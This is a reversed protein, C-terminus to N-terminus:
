WFDQTSIYYTGDCAVGIGTKDYNSNLINRRYDTNDMWSKIQAKAISDASYSVYSAGYGKEVVVFPMKGINETIGEKYRQWGVRKRLSYGFRKARATPDEGRLNIHSFFGNKAMDESHERAIESLKDDLVLEKVGNNSREINTYKLIAIEIVRSNTPTFTFMKHSKKYELEILALEEQSTVPRKGVGLYAYSTDKIAHEIQSCDHKEPLIHESCFYGECYYCKFGKITWLREGCIECSLNSTEM